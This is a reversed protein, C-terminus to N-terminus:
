FHGDFMTKRHISILDGEPFPGAILGRDEKAM